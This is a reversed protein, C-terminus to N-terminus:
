AAEHQLRDLQKQCIIRDERSMDDINAHHILDKLVAIQVKRRDKLPHGFSLLDCWERQEKDTM